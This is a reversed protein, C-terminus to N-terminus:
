DFNEEKIKRLTELFKNRAKESSALHIHPYGAYLRPGGHVCSWSRKSLPKRALFAEGNNNSESYHFEHGKLIDGKSSLLTEEKSEMEIYGFRNLKETMWSSGPVLGMLQYDRQGTFQDLISMFGGCECLLAIGDEYRKKIELLVQRNEELKEMYLEPYGGGIYIGQINDPLKKGELLSFPVWEVGMEELVKLSDEYYFCFAEDRAIAVRVKEKSGLEFNKYELDQTQSLEWLLDLDVHKELTDAMLGIMDNLGEVEDAMVLGLHRSELKLGEIQPVCGLLDIDCVDRIIKEYYAKMMPNVRNLIIGKITHDPRYELFGKILAGLSAGMGKPSVVLFVPTQTERALDYSSAISGNSIGDYFGMAGELIALDKKQSERMLLGKVYDPGMLFLDLNYSDLGLARRHFMPDIYDPGSKFTSISKGRRKFAEILGMTLSTKGVNSSTASLLFRHM